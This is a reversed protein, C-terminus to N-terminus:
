ESRSPKPTSKGHRSKRRSRNDPWHEPLRSMAKLERARKSIWKRIVPRERLPARGLAKVAHTVDLADLIPHHFGRRPPLKKLAKGEEGLKEIEKDTYRPHSDAARLDEWRVRAVSM